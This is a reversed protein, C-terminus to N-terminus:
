KQNPVKQKDYEMKTHLYRLVEDATPNKGHLRKMMAFVKAYQEHM